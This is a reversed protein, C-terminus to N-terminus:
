KGIKKRLLSIPDFPKLLAHMKGSRISSALLEGVLPSILIGSRYFGCAQYLGKISTEGILPKQVQSYPRLGAWTEVVSLKDLGPVIRKIKSRIKSLGATTTHPQFGAFEVTSGLLLEKKNWPVVYGGDISHLITKIKLASRVLLIEGRAPLVPSKFGLKDCTGAWSGTANIVMSSVFNRKGLLIGSVKEAYLLQAEQSSYLFHVGLKRAEQILIPILKKPQVRPITPYFLGSRVSSHIEPAIKLVESRSLWQTPIRSKKQWSYRKKLEREESENLAVYLMGYVDYGLDKKRSSKKLAKIWKPYHSFAQCSLKFLDSRPKMELFPDLIGAAAPSSAGRLGKRGIVLVKQHAKALAYAICIGVIGDGVIIADYQSRNSKSM